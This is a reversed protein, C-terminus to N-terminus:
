RKIIRIGFVPGALLSVESLEFPLVRFVIKEPGGTRIMAEQSKGCFTVPYGLILGVIIFRILYKM